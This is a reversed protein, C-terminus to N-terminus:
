VFLGKMAKDIDEVIQRSKASTSEKVANNERLEGASSSDSLEIMRQALGEIEKSDAINLGRITEATKKINNITNVKFGGGDLKDAFHLVIKRMAEFSHQQAEKLKEHEEERMQAALEEQQEDTINEVIRFDNVNPLPMTAIRISYRALVEEKTPYDQERWLEGLENKAKTVLWDWDNGFAMVASTVADIKTNLLQRVEFYNESQMIRTGDGWPLTNAHLATKFQTVAAGIAKYSGHSPDILLKDVGARNGKIHNDANVKRSAKRDKRKNGFQSITCSILM